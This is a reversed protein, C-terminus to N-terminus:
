RQYHYYVTKGGHSIKRKIKSSVHYNASSARFINCFANRFIAHVVDKGRVDRLLEQIKRLNIVDVTPLGRFRYLFNM